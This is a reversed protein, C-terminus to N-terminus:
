CANFLRNEPNKFSQTLCSVGSSVAAEFIAKPIIDILRPDFPKPIIYDEGYSLSDIKGPKGERHYELAKEHFEESM